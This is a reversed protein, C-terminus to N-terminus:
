IAKVHDREASLLGRIRQHVVLALEEVSEEADLVTFRGPEARAMSLYGNRIREHFDRPSKELRDAVKGMTRMRELARDVALDFVFTHDPVLGGTAYGNVMRLSDLPVGRGYGQYAITAESFRDCLVTTGARIAPLIKEAVHQARSALYLLVECETCMEQHRADLVISRIREAIDTGGPERTVLVPIRDQRLNAEAAKVQTTKGCGDIGEFTIFLGRSGTAM